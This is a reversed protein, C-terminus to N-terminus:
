GSCHKCIYRRHIKMFENSMEAKRALMNWIVRSISYETFMLYIMRPINIDDLSDLSISIFTIPLTLLILHILYFM